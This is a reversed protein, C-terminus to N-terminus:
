VFGHHDTDRIRHCRCVYHYGNGFFQFSSHAGARHRHALNGAAVSRHKKE